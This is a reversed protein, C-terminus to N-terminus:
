LNRLLSDIVFKYMAKHERLQRRTFKRPDFGERLARAPHIMNRARRLSEAARTPTRSGRGRPAATPGRAPADLVEISNAAGILEALGISHPIELEGGNDEDFEVLLYALIACELALGLAVAAMFFQGAEELEKAKGQYFDLLDNAADGHKTGTLKAM